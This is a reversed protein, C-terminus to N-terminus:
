ALENILQRKFHHGNRESVVFDAAEKPPRHKSFIAVGEISDPLQYKRGKIAEFCAFDPERIVAM